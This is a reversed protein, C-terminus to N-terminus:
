QDSKPRKDAVSNASHFEDVKEGQSKWEETQQLNSPLADDITTDSRDLHKVFEWYCQGRHNHGHNVAFGAEKMVPGIWGICHDCYDGSFDVKNRLLFGRSPCDAIRLVFRGDEIGATYGGDPAEDSLTHGWYAQMGLLGHALIEKSAHQQSDGGIAKEWYELLTDRGGNELIWRFTWDYHTCFDYCGLM